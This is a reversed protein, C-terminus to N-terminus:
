SARLPRSPAAVLVDGEQCQVGGVLDEDAEVGEEPLRGVLPRDLAEEALQQAVLVVLVRLAGQLRRDGEVGESGGHARVDHPHM